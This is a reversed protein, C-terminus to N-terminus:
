RQREASASPSRIYCGTLNGGVRLSQVLTVLEQVTRVEAASVEPICVSFRRELAAVIEHCNLGDTADAMLDTAIRDLPRMLSADGPVATGVAQRVAIASEEAGPFLSAFDSESLPTRDAMSAAFKRRISWHHAGAFVLAVVGLAILSVYEM